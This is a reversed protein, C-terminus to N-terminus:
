KNKFYFSLFLHFMISLCLSLFVFSLTLSTTQFLRSHDIPPSGFSFVTFFASNM